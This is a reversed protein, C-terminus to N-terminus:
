PIQETKHTSKRKRVAVALLTVTVLLPVILVSPFEPIVWQGGEYHIIAGNEGVAWGDNVAGMMNVSYLHQTTPSEANAWEIGNWHIIAGNVGMAWGDNASTMVVSLLNATTPSLVSNWRTGNWRIITGYWGVAWGNTENTMYVSELPNVTPSEVDGWGSYQSTVRVIDGDLGVAWANYMSITYVSKLSNTTSSQRTDYTTEGLYFVKGGDGVAVAWGSAKEISISFLNGGLNHGMLWQSGNWRIAVGAEGIAWGMVSNRMCVSYLDKTTPSTVNSWETGDYHIIIGDMGVAWVDDAELMSVSRLGKATPSTGNWWVAEANAIPVFSVMSLIVVLLSVKSLVSMPM